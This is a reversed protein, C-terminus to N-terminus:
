ESADPAETSVTVTTSEPNPLALVTGVDAPDKFIDTGLRQLYAIMAVVKKNESDAAAPGGQAELEEAITRAQHRAHLVANDDKILEGYPTGLMAMANVRGQIEDFDVDQELLWPYSPMISNANTDRPNRFHTYHWFHSRLGGERALDPGIRRSGWQFPRDYVSEGPKSFEGYRETEAFIPRIMQSHCNYCGEAVYIDRGTLELPTYPEVTKITPVNSQILFMPIAEALSGIGIGGLTIVTFTVPLREWVRHWRMQSFRDITHAIPTATAPLRSKTPASKAVPKLPAATATRPEYKDPRNRWTMFVNVALMVVGAVFLSGGVIRLWYM